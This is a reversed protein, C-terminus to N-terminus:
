QFHEMIILAKYVLLLGLTMLEDSIETLYDNKLLKFIQKTTYVM